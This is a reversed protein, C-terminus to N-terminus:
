KQEDSVDPNVIEPFLSLLHQEETTFEQLRPDNNRFFTRYNRLNKRAQKQTMDEYTIEDAIDNQM